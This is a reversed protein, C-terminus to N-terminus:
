LTINEFYETKSPVLTISVIDFQYDLSVLNYQDRFVAAVKIIKSLKKKDVAEYPFGYNDNKRTKVEIFHLRKDKKTIIDIEGLKKYRFNTAIISHGLQELYEKALVEGYKGTQQNKM